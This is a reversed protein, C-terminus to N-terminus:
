VLGEGAGDCRGLRAPCVDGRERTPFGALYFTAVGPSSHFHGASVRVGWHHFLPGLLYM